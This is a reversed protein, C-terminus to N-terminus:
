NTPKELRALVDQAMKAPVEHEGTAVDQLLQRGLTPNLRETCYREGLHVDLQAVTVPNTCHQKVKELASIGEDNVMAVMAGLAERAVTRGPYRAMLQELIPLGAEGQNRANDIQYLAEFNNEQAEALLDFREKIQADSMTWAQVYEEQLLRYNDYAERYRHFVDFEINAIELQLRGAMAHDEASDRADKLLAIAGTIDDAAVKQHADALIRETPAPPTYALDDVPASQSLVAYLGGFCVIASAAMLGALWLNRASPAAPQNRLEERLAPLLNGEFPIEEAPLVQHMAQLQIYEAHCNACTALHQDLAAQEATELPEYLAAAMTGQMDRCKSM